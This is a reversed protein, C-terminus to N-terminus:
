DEETSYKKPYEFFGRKFSGMEVEMWSKRLYQLEVIGSTPINDISFDSLYNSLDTLSPNHGVLLVNDSTETLNKILLLLETTSSAYLNYDEKINYFPYGIQDCFLRATKIARDAPSSIVDQFVIGKQYIIKGMFPADREGRSNLPRDFDKLSQDDHSSKAHRMLYLTKM